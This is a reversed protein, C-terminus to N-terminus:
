KKSNSYEETKPVMNLQIAAEIMDSVTKEIPTPQIGLVEVMRKNSIEYEKGWLFELQKAKESFFSAAYVLWYPMRWTPINYGYPTLEASVLDALSPLSTPYANSIIHRQGAAEDLTLAKIHAEAVDRVDCMFLFMHPFVFSERTIIKTLMGVTTAAANCRLLPPGLVVVPNVVRLSFRQSDPTDAWIKWAEKEALTKSKSYEIVGPATVDTWTAETVPQTRDMTLQNGSIASVSSTLVVREVGARVAAELVRRTGGIAPGVLEGPAQTKKFIDPLPSATHLVAWCGSLAEDWCDDDELDAEFLQIPHEADPVLRRLPETEEVSALSRVTGRVRYGAQQLRRVIHAAIYGSAGTVLVTKAAM